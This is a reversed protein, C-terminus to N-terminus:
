EGDGHISPERSDSNRKTGVVRSGDGLFLVPSSVEDKTEVDPGPTRLDNSDERCLSTLFEFNTQKCPGQVYKHIRTSVIESGKEGRGRETYNTIQLTPRVRLCMTVRRLSGIKKVLNQVTVTRSIKHYSMSTVYREERNVNVRHHM